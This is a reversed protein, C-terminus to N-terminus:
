GESERKSYYGLRSLQARDIGPLREDYQHLTASEQPAMSVRCLTPNFGFGEALEFASVPMMKMIFELVNLKNAKMEVVLEGILQHTLRKLWYGGTIALHGNEQFVPTEPHEHEGLICM